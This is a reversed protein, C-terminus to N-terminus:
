SSVKSDSELFLSGFDWEHKAESRSRPARKKRELPSIYPEDWKEYDDYDVDIIDSDKYKKSDKFKFKMPNSQKVIDRLIGVSLRNSIPMSTEERLVEDVENALEFEEYAYQIWSELSQIVAPFRDRGKLGPRTAAVLLVELRGKIHDFFFQAAQKRGVPNSPDTGFVDECWKRFSERTYETKACTYPEDAGTTLKGTNELLDSKSVGTAVHIRAALGPSMRNRGNEVSVITDRSVGLMVAFQAQTKGLIERLKAVTKNPKTKM